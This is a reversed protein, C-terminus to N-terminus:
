SKGKKSNTVRAKPIRHRFHSIYSGVILRQHYCKNILYITFKHLSYWRARNWWSCSSIMVNAAAIIFFCQQWTQLKKKTRRRRKKKTWIKRNNPPLFHRDFLHNEIECAVSKSDIKLVKNWTQWDVNNTVIQKFQKMGNFSVLRICLLTNM